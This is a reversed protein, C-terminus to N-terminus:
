KKDDVVVADAGQVTVWGHTKRAEAEEMRILEDTISASKIKNAEAEGKAKTIMVDAETQAKVKETEAQALATAKDLEAKEADQKAQEKAQIKAKLDKDLQVDIILASSIHIGYETSLKEDLYKTIETSVESRKGSYIDMVSFKPTVEKVYAIISNRVKSDVIQDGDMGNFKTYIDVVREPIFNYNVTMNLKVMGGDTAADLHTDGDYENEDTYDEKNNSFIIQKQSIPYDKVKCLPSTFHLGTPLTEERAGDKVSWVVGVEGQGVYTGCKIVIGTGILALIIIITVIIIKSKTSRKQTPRDNEGWEYTRAM